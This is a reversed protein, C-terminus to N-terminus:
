ISDLIATRRTEYEEATVLGEDRLHQLERLRDDVSREAATRPPDAPRDRLSSALYTADLGDDSLLTMTTARDPDMGSEEAMRRALSVRWLTGGVGFLVAIVGFAVFGAPLGPDGGMGVPDTDYFGPPEASAAAASGALVGLSLLLTTLLRRTM